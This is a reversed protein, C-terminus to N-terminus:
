KRSQMPGLMEPFLAFAEGRIRQRDAVSYDTWRMEPEPETATLTSQQITVSGVVAIGGSRPALTVGGDRLSLAITTLVVVAIALGFHAWRRRPPTDDRLARMRSRLREELPANDNNAM